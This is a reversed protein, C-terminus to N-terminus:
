WEDEDVFIPDALSKKMRAILANIDQDAYRLIQDCTRINNQTTYYFEFYNRMSNGNAPKATEHVLNSIQYKYRGEKIWINLKFEFKGIPRKAYKSTYAYAPIFLTATIKQNKKDVEYKIDKGFEKALFKKARIYISDSSSEEQEIVDYYTILNTVSDFNLTIREYLKIVVTEEKSEEDTTQETSDEETAGWDFGSNDVQAFAATAGLFILFALCYKKM